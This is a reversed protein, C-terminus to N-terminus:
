YNLKSVDYLDGDKGFIAMGDDLVNADNTKTKVDMAKAKWNLIGIESILNITKILNKLHQEKINELQSLVDSM